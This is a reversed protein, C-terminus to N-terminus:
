ADMRIRMYRPASQPTRMMGSAQQRWQAATSALPSEPQVLPQQGLSPQQIGARPVAASEEVHIEPREAHGDILELITLHPEPLSSVVGLSEGSQPIAAAGRAPIGRFLGVFKEGERDANSVGLGASSRLSEAPYSGEGFSFRYRKSTDSGVAKHHAAVRAPLVQPMSKTSARQGAAIRRRRTM